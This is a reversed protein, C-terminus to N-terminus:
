ILLGSWAIAFATLVVSLWLAALAQMINYLRRRSRATRAEIGLRIPEPILPTPRIIM